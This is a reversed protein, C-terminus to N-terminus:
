VGAAALLRSESAASAGPLSVVSTANVEDNTPQQGNSPTAHLRPRGASQSYKQLKAPASRRRHSSTVLAPLCRGSAICNFAAPRM